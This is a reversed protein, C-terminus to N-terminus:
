VESVAKEVNRKFDELNKDSFRINLIVSTNLCDCVTIHSTCGCRRCTMCSLFSLYTYNKCTGCIHSDYRSTLDGYQKTSVKAYCAKVTERDKLEKEMIKLYAEAVQKKAELSFDLENIKKVNEVILWEYPFSGKKSFGDNAYDKMAINAFPIWDPTAINVAEAVNFGHSFGAHYVKPFTIIFERPHQETRYVPINRKVLELPNMTLVINYLLDPHFIFLECYKEKIVHEFEEKHSSPICYWTKAAGKHMYNVSYMYLDEMHWCFSAFMMGAYVWPSTIGSINEFKRTIIQFLSNHAHILNNLNFPHVREDDITNIEHLKNRQSTPFASGYRMSPLDAAYEIAVPEDQFQPDEVTAWYEFENSRYEDKFNFSAKPKYNEKFNNAFNEYENLTYSNTNQKFSKGKILNQLVQTRTAIKKNQLALSFEPNWEDPARLKVCGYKEYGMERLKNILSIPQRFEEATPEYIPIEPINLYSEPERLFVPPSDEQTKSKVHTTLGKLRITTVNRINSNKSRIHAKRSKTSRQNNQNKDM